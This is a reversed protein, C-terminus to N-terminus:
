KDAVREAGEIQEIAEDTLDGAAEAALQELAEGPTSGTGENYVLEVLAGEDDFPSTVPEATWQDAGAERYVQIMFYVDGSKNVAM